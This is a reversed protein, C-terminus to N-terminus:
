FEKLELDKRPCENCKSIPENESNFLVNLISKSSTM